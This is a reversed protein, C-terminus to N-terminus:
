STGRMPGHWGLAAMKRPATSSVAASFGPQLGLGTLFEPVGFDVHEYTLTAAHDYIRNMVNFLDPVEILHLDTVPPASGWYKTVAAAAQSAKGTVIVANRTHDPGPQGDRGALSSRAVWALRGM